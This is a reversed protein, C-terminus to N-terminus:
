DEKNEEEVEKKEKEQWGRAIEQEGVIAGAAAVRREEERQEAQLHQLLAASHEQAQVALTSYFALCALYALSQGM